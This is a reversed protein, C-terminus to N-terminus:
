TTGKPDKWATNLLEVSFKHKELAKTVAAGLAKILLLAESMPLNLIEEEKKGPIRSVLLRAFAQFQAVNSNETMIGWNIHEGLTVEREDDFRIGDVVTTM